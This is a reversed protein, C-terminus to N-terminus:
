SSSENNKKFIIISQGILTLHNLLTSLKRIMEVLDSHELERSILDISAHAANNRIKLIEDITQEINHEKFVERVSEMRSYKKKISRLIAGVNKPFRNEVGDAKTVDEVLLKMLMKQSDAVKDLFKSKMSDDDGSSSEYYALYASQLTSSINKIKELGHLLPTDISVDWDTALGYVLLELLRGARLGASTYHGENFENVLQEFEHHVVEFVARKNLIGLLETLPSVLTQYPDFDEEFGDFDVHYNKQVFSSSEKSIGFEMDVIVVPITDMSNEKAFNFRRQGDIIQLTGDTLRRALIPEFPYDSVMGEILIPSTERSFLEWSSFDEIKADIVTFYESRILKIQEAVRQIGGPSINETITVPHQFKESKSVENKKKKKLGFFQNFPNGSNREFKNLDYDWVIQCIPSGYIVIHQCTKESLDSWQDISCLSNALSDLLSVNVECDIETKFRSCFCSNRSIINPYIQETVRLCIYISLRNVRARGCYGKM